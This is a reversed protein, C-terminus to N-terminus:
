TEGFTSNMVLWVWQTVIPLNQTGVPRAATWHGVITCNCIDEIEKLKDNLEETVAEQNDDMWELGEKVAYAVTEKTHESCFGTTIHKMDMALWPIFTVLPLSSPCLSNGRGRRAQVHQTAHNVDCGLARGAM